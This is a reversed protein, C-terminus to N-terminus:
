TFPATQGGVWGAVYVVEGFSWWEQGPEWAPAKEQYAKTRNEAQFHCADEAQTM